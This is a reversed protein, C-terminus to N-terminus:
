NEMSEWCIEAIDKVEIKDELNEAKRADELMIMCGPCTVALINAGTSIAEQIRKRAPSNKGSGVLDTYFNGGGGGCCFADKKNRDMEVLEVAPIGKLIVRPTEYENNWRGLFCPDHFTVKKGPTKKFVIRNQAICQELLHTYHFVEFKGGIGPYDNKLTNYAHPSLTCIKKVKKDQFIRLNKEAFYHFLGQEGLQRIDNGDTHEEAGLIGFNVGAKKLIEAACRAVKNVRPDYSGIDGIYFLYENQQNYTQIGTNKAWDGRKSQPESWPNGHQFLNKLYQNALKPIVSQEVLIRRGAVMMNVIDKSFEIPCKDVCNACMTCTYLINALQPTIEIEKMMMARILWLMGGPAHTETYYKNYTPCNFYAYDSSFKCYGCRYCRHIINKYKELPM